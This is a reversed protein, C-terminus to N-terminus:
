NIKIQLLQLLKEFRNSLDNHDTVNTVNNNTQTQLSFLLNNFKETLFDNDRRLVQIEKLLLVPLDHYRVSLAKGEIDYVVLSPMIEEVEEAILGSLKTKTEDSKLNFTVPRLQLVNSRELDAINTKFRRSSVVTGLQDTNDVVVPIGSVGVTKGFIGSIFAKALQQSGTGTGGGIRLVNSEGATGNANISINSSESSTYGSGAFSGLAVNLSGSTILYNAAVGISTNSGSGGNVANLAYAGLATNNNRSTEAQLAFRGIAVNQTGAGLAAGANIGFTVNANADSFNLTVTSGSAVFKSTGDGNSTPTTITITSGTASGSNGNLTMTSLGTSAITITNAGPTVTIGSGATITATGIQDSAMTLVKAVSGVNVGDIGCIFARNLQFNGTGTAAGIRLTNNNGATGTNNICINNSDSTTWNGGANYGLASNNNGTTINPITAAGIATNQGGSQLAALSNGGVGTNSGSAGSTLAILSHYGVATNLGADSTIATLASNGLGVNNTSTLTFNGASVGVFINATGFAHFARTANIQVQGATSSTTPLLLNGAVIAVNGTTASFGTGATMSGSISVTNNLNTTLTSGSGSTNLNSGGVASINGNSATVTGSDTTITNIGGGFFQTFVIPDTGITTVTATQIWFTGSNVTGSQVPVIDGPQIQATTNYDTARTLVWAVAGSGVTTLTYIGNQFTTGQNKVLIRSNIAPSVGDVSFAALAGANTLTAGVGSAGNAYTANLNATTAAVCAAQFKLGAVLSDVYTKNTGDTGVVPANTITISTVSPTASFSPDSGTNGILVTGAVGSVQAIPATTAGVLVSHNTLTSNGTGGEVVPIPSIQKYSM